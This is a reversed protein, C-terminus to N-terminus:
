STSWEIDIWLEINWRGNRAVWSKGTYVLKINCMVAPFTYGGDNISIQFLTPTSEDDYCDTVNGKADNTITLIETGNNDCGVGGKANILDDILEAVQTATVVGGASIDCEIATEGAHSPDSDTGSVNMWCYYKTGAVNFHFSSEAEITDKDSCIVLTIEVKGTLNRKNYLITGDIIENIISMMNAENEMSLQIRYRSRYTDYDIRYMKGPFVLCKKNGSIFGINRTTEFSEVILDTTVESLFTRIYDLESDDAM